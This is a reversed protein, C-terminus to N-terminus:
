SMLSMLLCILFIFLQMGSVATNNWLLCLCLCHLCLVLFRLQRIVLHFSGFTFVFYFLHVVTTCHMFEWIIVLLMFSVLM